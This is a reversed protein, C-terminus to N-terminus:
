LGEHNDVEWQTKEYNECGSEDLVVNIRMCEGDSCYICTLRKCYVM